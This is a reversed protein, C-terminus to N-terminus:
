KVFIKVGSDPDGILLSWNPQDLESPAVAFAITTTIQEGPKLTGSTPKPPLPQYVKGNPGVLSMPAFNSTQATTTAMVNIILVSPVAQGLDFRNVSQVSMDMDGARVVEGVVATPTLPKDVQGIVPTATLALLVALIFKM